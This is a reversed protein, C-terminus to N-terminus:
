LVYPRLPAHWFTVRYDHESDESNQGLRASEVV